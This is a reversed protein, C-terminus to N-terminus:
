LPLKYSAIGGPVNKRMPKLAIVKAGLLTQGKPLECTFYNSDSKCSASVELANFKVTADISSNQVTPNQWNIDLLYVRFEQSNVQVLETHFSGPMRISGGNPGPKDEGHAFVKLPFVQLLLVVTVMSQRIDM